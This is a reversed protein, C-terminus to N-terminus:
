LLSGGLLGGDDGSDGINGLGDDSSDYGLASAVDLLGAGSENESLGVDEASNELELRADAASTGDAMLQGAAGAVHPAAMSTGSLRTYRGGLYTSYIETGPAAIDVEPGQSSYSALSDDRDTASVAVTYDNEAPYSVCDTCPGSNGAATALFVGEAHAYECADRVAESPSSSGLSLSGVDYGQDATWEIGRAVDSSLGSGPATLVKVAHLTAATSIGEVGEGDDVADAIGACHTGHGNDDQWESSQIGGLFATGEGLNAALDGHTADIGTDIIAIDAGAGTEGNGHAVDADTRDIGWPTEGLARMEIDREVYRVSPDDGLADLARVPLDVTVADFSFDYRTAGALQEAARKGARDRYGVTARVTETATDSGDLSAAASGAVSVLGTVALSGGATRLVDRRTRTGDVVM